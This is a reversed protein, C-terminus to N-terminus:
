PRPSYDCPFNLDYYLNGLAVEYHQLHEHPDGTGDYRDVVPLEFGEPFPTIEVEMPYPRHHLPHMPPALSQQRLIDHVCEEIDERRTINQALALPEFQIIEPQQRPTLVQPVPAPIHLPPLPTTSYLQPALSASYTPLPAFYHQSAAPTQYQLVSAAPQQIAAAHYTNCQFPPAQEWNHLQARLGANKANVRHFKARRTENGEIMRDLTARM